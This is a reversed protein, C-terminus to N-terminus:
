AMVAQKLPQYIHYFNKYQKNDKTKSAKMVLLCNPAFLQANDDNAMRQYEDRLDQAFNHWDPSEEGAKNTADVYVRGKDTPIIAQRGYQGEKIQIAGTITYYVLSDDDYQPNSKHYPLTAAVASKQYKEGGGQVFEQVQIINPALQKYHRFPLGNTEAQAPKPNDTADKLWKDVDNIDGKAAPKPANQSDFWHKVALLYQDIEADTFAAHQRLYRMADQVPKGNKLMDVVNSDFPPTPAPKATKTPKVSPFPAFELKEIGIAQYKSALESLKDLGGMLSAAAMLAANGNDWSHVTIGIGNQWAKNWVTVHPELGAENEVNKQTCASVWDKGAFPAIKWSNDIIAMFARAWTAITHATMGELAETDCNGINRVTVSLEHRQGCVTAFATYTTTAFITAM